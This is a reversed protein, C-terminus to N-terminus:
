PWAAFSGTPRVQSRMFDMRHRRPSKGTLRKFFRSFYAPDEFGLLGAVEAIQLGSGEIMQRAEAILRAHILALPTRGLARQVATNLRDASVGLYAAYDGVSWHRRMNLDVLQLFSDVILRPLPLAEGPAAEALRWLAIFFVALQHRIMDRAGPGVDRLEAEIGAFLAALRRALDADLPVGLLARAVVRRLNEVINPSSVVEALTLDGVAIWASSSGARLTLTATTGRPLWLLCPAALLSREGALDLQGSGSVLVFARHRRGHLTWQAPELASPVTQAEVQLSLGTPAVENPSPTM